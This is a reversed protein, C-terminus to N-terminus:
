EEEVVKAVDVVKEGESLQILKVGQANRGTESIDKVKIRIIKGQNTVIMVEDTDKVHGAYVVPGNRDTIKVTILGKGGKRQVPYEEVKTRKGYGNETVVLIYGEDGKIAEMSVVRDEKNSMRMGIVGSAIRGREPVDKSSFRISKGFKTTLFIDEDKILQVGVLNDGERIRVAQLGASTIKSFLNLRTKKIIGKATAMILYRDESFHRVPLVHAISEGKKIKLLNVIAKGKSTRGEEPIEYVKKCYVRGMNTFFLVMDHSLALFIHEIFDDGKAKAGILGRGGRKQTKYLNVPTRKIYGRHSITVVMEEDAILDETGIDAFEDELIKTKREDGYIEKIRKTEEKIIELILKPNSLIEKYRAINKILQQYEADIKERELGTLRQLTMDMIAQAQASTLNLEKILKAKAEKPDSSSRILKIVKDLETLAKKLGELIHARQEAKKLEYITRRRIVERRHLIFQEIIQKLNLIEPRGNVIALMIIGFSIEMQTFKFLRNMIVQSNADKKLEIVVRIGEKNSEDRIETVGEIKKERVLEGIRELLRTKNVQYPIESIVIVDKKKKTEIFAKARVKIIGKGTKYAEKIGEKGIIFGATPFDPGPIIEILEDISVDPNDIVKIVADCVESLNHPPINTAMGVAIGSSGNILLNPITTPLVVPEMLSGDYNPVFDVTEKEIDTLFDKAIPTMRVETYRMAAPPDGDISGFNGQGDILPYRMSFDQAMRVIADYVAADGHPHYKGIVDGVIRSSKKYPRDPFNKLEYMSYLIRRHVPKLGDRVDPLARGVIVSMSYELYSRKVEEEISVVEINNEERIQEM